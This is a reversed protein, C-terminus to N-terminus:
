HDVQNVEDDEGEFPQPQQQEDVEEDTHNNDSM